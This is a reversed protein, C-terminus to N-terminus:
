DSVFVDSEQVAFEGCKLGTEAFEGVRTEVPCVPATTERKEFMLTELELAPGTVTSPLLLCGPAEVNLLVVRFSLNFKAGPLFIGSLTEELPSALALCGPPRGVFRVGSIVARIASAM